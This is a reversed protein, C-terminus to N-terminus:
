FKYLKGSGTITSKIVPPEGRYYVDGQYEISVELETNATVECDGTSRTTVYTYNSELSSLRMFGNGTSYVYLIGTKGSANIDGPGTHLKLKTDNCDLLLNIVGTGNWSEAMFEDSRITDLCHLVGSGRMTIAKLDTYTIEVTFKNKFDRLWNCRNINKIRLLGNDVETSVGDLLNEGATVRAQNMSGHKLIVDVNQNMEIAYFEPLDRVETESDGTSKLCNCLSDKECSSLSISLLMLVPWFVPSYRKKQDRIFRMQNFKLIVRQLDRNM